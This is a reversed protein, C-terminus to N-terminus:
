IMNFSDYQFISTGLFTFIVSILFWHCNAQLKGKLDELSSFFSDPRLEDEWKIKLRCNIDVFSFKVDNNCKFLNNAELLLAHREKTLDLRIKVNNRIKKRERYVLIRHRFTTFRVIIVKGKKKTKYDYFEPGIRHARDIVTDPIDLEGEDFINKYM